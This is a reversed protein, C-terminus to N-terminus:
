RKVVVSHICGRLVGDVEHPTVTVALRRGGRVAEYYYERIKGSKFDELIRDIKM